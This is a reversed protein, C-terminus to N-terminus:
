RRNRKRNRKAGSRQEFERELERELEESQEREWEAHCQAGCFYLVYEHAEPSIAESAPILKKWVACEVTAPLSGTTDNETM